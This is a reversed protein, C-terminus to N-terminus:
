VAVSLSSGGIYRHCSPSGLRKRLTNLDMQSKISSSSTACSDSNSSQYCGEQFGGSYDPNGVSPCECDVRPNSTANLPTSKVLSGRRRCHPSSLPHKPPSNRYVYEGGGGSMR